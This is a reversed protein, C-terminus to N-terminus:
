NNIYNILEKSSVLKAGLKICAEFYDQHVDYHPHGEANHFFPVYKTEETLNKVFSHLKDLDRCALHSHDKWSKRPTDIVIPTEENNSLDEVSCHYIPSDSNIAFRTYRKYEIGDVLRSYDSRNYKIHSDDQEIFVMASKPVLILHKSKDVEVEANIFSLILYDELNINSISQLKSSLKLLEIHLKVTLLYLFTADAERKDDNDVINLATKVPVIRDLKIKRPILGIKVIPLIGSMDGCTIYEIM